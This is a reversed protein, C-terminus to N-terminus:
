CYADHPLCDGGREHRGKALRSFKHIREAFQNVRTGNQSRASPSHGQANALEQAIQPGTTEAAVSEKIWRVFRSSVMFSRVSTNIRWCTDTSPGPRMWSASSDTPADDSIRRTSRPAGTGFVRLGNAPKTTIPPGM